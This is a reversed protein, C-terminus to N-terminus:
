HDCICQLYKYLRWTDSVARITYFMIEVPSLRSSDEINILALFTGLLVRCM